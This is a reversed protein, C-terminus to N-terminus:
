PSNSKLYILVESLLPSSDRIYTQMGIIAISNVPILSNVEFILMEEISVMISIHLIGDSPFIKIIFTYVLPSDNGKYLPFCLQM